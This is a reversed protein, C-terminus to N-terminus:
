NHIKKRFVCNKSSNNYVLEFDKHFVWSYDGRACPENRFKGFRQGLSYGLQRWQQKMTKDSVYNEIYWEGTSSNLMVTEGCKVIFYRMESIGPTLNQWTEISVPADFENTFSVKSSM